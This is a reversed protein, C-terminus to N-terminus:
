ISKADPDININFGRKKLEELFKEPNVSLEPPLAGKPTEGRAQMIAVIAASFGTTREMATFNEDEYDKWFMKLVTNKGKRKGRAYLAFIVMDMGIARCSKELIEKLFEQPIILRGGITIPTKEFLGLRKLLIIQELHGKYRITKEIYNKVKGRFSWPATSTGGSTIFSEYPFGSGRRTKDPNLEADFKELSELQTLADIQFVEGDKLINAKGSYENILGEVSFTLKYELPFLYKEQPLGGVYIRIEDCEDFKKLVYAALINGAGPMLGCDPIISIGAKKAKINLDLEEWVIDTNGGLDCFNAKAKLALEACEKNLRYPLSSIININRGALMKLIVKSGEPFLIQICKLNKGTLQSIKKQVFSLRRGDQDFLFIEKADGFRALDYAIAQGQRGAGLVAYTFKKM